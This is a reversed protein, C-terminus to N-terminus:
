DDASKRLAEIAVRADWAYASWERDIRPQMEPDDYEVGGADYLARRCLARAVREIEATTVHDNSVTIKREESPASNRRAEGIADVIHLAVLRIGNYVGNTARNDLYRSLFVAWDDPNDVNAPYGAAITESKGDTMPRVQCLDM